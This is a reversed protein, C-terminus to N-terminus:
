IFIEELDEATGKYKEDYMRLALNFNQADTKGPNNRTIVSFRTNIAEEFTPKIILRDSNLLTGIDIPLGSIRGVNEREPTTRNLAKDEKPPTIGVEVKEKTEQEVSPPPESVVVPKSSVARKPEPYVSTDAKTGEQEELEKRLAEQEDEGFSEASHIDPTTNVM